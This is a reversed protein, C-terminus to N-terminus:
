SSKSFELNELRPLGLAKGVVAVAIEGVIAGEAVAVIGLVPQDRGALGLRAGAWRHVRGILVIREAPAGVFRAGADRLALDAVDAVVARAVDARLVPQQRRALGSQRRAVL